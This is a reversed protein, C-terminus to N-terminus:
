ARVGTGGGGGKYEMYRRYLARASEWMSYPSLFHAAEFTIVKAVYPQVAELKHRLKLWDIPPFRFPM